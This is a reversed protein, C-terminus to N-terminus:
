TRRPAARRPSTGAPRRARAAPDQAVLDLQAKGSSTPFATFSVLNVGAEKLQALVRAGEGPKDPVEVYFYDVRRIRDAM